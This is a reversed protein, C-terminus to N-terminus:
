VHNDAGQQPVNQKAPASPGLQQQAVKKPCHM